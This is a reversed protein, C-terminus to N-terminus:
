YRWERCIIEAISHDLLINLSQLERVLAEITIDWARHYKKEFSKIFHREAYKEIKVSYKTSM